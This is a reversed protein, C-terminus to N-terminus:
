WSISTNVNVEHNIWMTKADDLFEKVVVKKIFAKNSSDYLVKDTITIHDADETVSKGNLTFTFCEFLADELTTADKAVFKDVKFTPAVQSDSVTFYTTNIVKNNSLDTVKVKYTGKELKIAAGSVTQIDNDKGLNAGAKASALIYTKSLADDADSAGFIENGKPDVVEIDYLTHDVKEIRVGKKDYKYVSVTVTEDLDDSKLKM